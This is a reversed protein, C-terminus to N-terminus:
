RALFRPHPFRMLAPMSWEALLLLTMVRLQRLLSQWPGRSRVRTMAEMEM